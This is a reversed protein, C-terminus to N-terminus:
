RMPITLGSDVVLNTRTVWRSGESLLYTVCTAVEEPEILGLPALRVMDAVSTTTALQDFMPTRVYGPSVCNARIKHKAVELALSRVASILAAKSASYIASGVPAIHHADASLYVLSANVNIKKAKLLAQTLFMPAKFNIDMQSQFHRESIMRFPAVQAIGAAYVLGDIPGMTQVWDTWAAPDNLDLTRAIHDTGELSTLTEQLRAADRGTLVLRAGMQSAMVACARGIGSSAGTVLITRGELSYPSASM